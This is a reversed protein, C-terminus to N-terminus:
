QAQMRVRLSCNPNDTRYRGFRKVNYAVTISAHKRQTKIAFM